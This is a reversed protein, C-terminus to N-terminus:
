ELGSLEEYLSWLTPTDLERYLETMTECHRRKAKRWEELVSLTREFAWAEMPALRQMYGEGQENYLLSWHMYRESGM